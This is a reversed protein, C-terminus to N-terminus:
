NLMDEIIVMISAPDRSVVTLFNFNNFSNKLLMLNNPLINTLKSNQPDGIAFINLGATEPKQFVPNSKLSMYIEYNIVYPIGNLYSGFYSPGYWLRIKFIRYPDNTGILNLTKTYNRLDIDYKYFTTSSTNDFYTATSPIEIIFGYKKGVDPMENRVISKVANSTTFINSVITNDLIEKGFLQLEAFCLETQGSVSVLKSFTFGIYQYTTSFTTALTKEYYGLSYDTSILRTTTNSAEIIETFIIGDNSGYCKWEAPAQELISGNFIKFKTLLIAQPVKLIIWDGYYNGDISNDAQYNGTGSNYQNIFWRSNISDNTFNFLKSKPTDIDYTSSSYVEYFGDGYTIINKNLFFIERYVLKDLLTITDETKISNYLKPPYQREISYNNTLNYISNSTLYTSDLFKNNEKIKGSAILENTSITNVNSINGNNLYLNSCNISGSVTLNSSITTFGAM